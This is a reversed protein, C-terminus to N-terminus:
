SKGRSGRCTRHKKQVGAPWNKRGGNRMIRSYKINGNGRRSTTEQEEEVGEEEREEGEKRSYGEQGLEM